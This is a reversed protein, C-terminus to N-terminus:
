LKLYQISSSGPVCRFIPREQENEPTLVVEKTLEDALTAMFGFLDNLRSESDIDSPDLDFEIEDVTFFHLNIAIGCM